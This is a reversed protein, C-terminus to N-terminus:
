LATAKALEAHLPAGAPEECSYTEETLVTKPVSVPITFDIWGREDLKCESSGDDHAHAPHEFLSEWSTSRAFLTANPGFVTALVVRRGSGGEKKSFLQGSKARYVEPHPVCFWHGSGYGFGPGLQERLADWM